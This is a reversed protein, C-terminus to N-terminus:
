TPNVRFLSFLCKDCLSKTLLTNLDETYNDDHMMKDEIKTIINYINGTDANITIAVADVPFQNHQYKYYGSDSHKVQLEYIGNNYKTVIIYALTDNIKIKVGFYYDPDETNVEHIVFTIDNVQDINITNAENETSLVVLSEYVNKIDTYDQKKSESFLFIIIYVCLKKVRNTFGGM